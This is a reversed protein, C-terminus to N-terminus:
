RARKTRLQPSLSPLPQKLLPQPEPMGWVRTAISTSQQTVHFFNSEVQATCFYPDEWCFCSSFKYFLLKWLVPQLKMSNRLDSPVEPLWKVWCKQELVVVSLWSGQIWILEKGEYSSRNGSRKKVEQRKQLLWLLLLSSALHTCWCESTSQFYVNGGVASLITFRLHRSRFKTSLVAGCPLSHWM